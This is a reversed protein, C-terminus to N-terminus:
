SLPPSRDDAGVAEAFYCGVLFFCVGLYAATFEMTLIVPTKYNDNLKIPDDKNTMTKHLCQLPFSTFFTSLFFSFLRTRFRAGNLSMFEAPTGLTKM